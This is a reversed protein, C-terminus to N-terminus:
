QISYNAWFAMASLYASNNVYTEWHVANLKQISDNKKKDHQYVLQM